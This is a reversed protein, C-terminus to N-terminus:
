LRRHDNQRFRETIMRSTDIKPATRGQADLSRAAAAQRVMKADFMQSMASDAALTQALHSAMQYIVASVFYPPWFSEDVRWHGELVVKDASTANCFIMDEFRDFAIPNGNVMVTTPTLCDAPLQYAADWKAPPADALRDLQKMGMAFRWRYRSLHDRVTDEYINACAISASTGDAFSTIPQEGILICAQACIEFKNAM